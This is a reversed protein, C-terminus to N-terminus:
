DRLRTLLEYISIEGREKRVAKFDRILFDLASHNHEKWYNYHILTLSFSNFYNTRGLALPWTLVKLPALSRPYAPEKPTNQLMWSNLRLSDDESNEMILWWLAFPNMTGFDKKDGHMEVSRLTRLYEVCVEVELFKYKSSNAVRIPNSISDTTM